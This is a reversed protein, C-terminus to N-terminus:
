GIRKLYALAFFLASVQMSQLLEGKKAMDTVESLPKLIVEIEETADLDQEGMKVADLALFSYIWNTQIAPNPSVCGVQIWRESTYGTEERLERMAASQPNEDAADIMGGPFELIVKQVGHRYQRIMVVQDERTLALVTVWDGFEFVTGEFVEGNPLECKDIRLNRHIHKSELIKWPKVTM